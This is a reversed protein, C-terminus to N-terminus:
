VGLHHHHFCTGKKLFNSQSLWLIARRVTAHSCPRLNVPCYRKSPASARPQPHRLPVSTLDPRVKSASTAPLASPDLHEAYSPVIISDNFNFWYASDSYVYFTNLIKVSIFLWGTFTNLVHLWWKLTITIYINSYIFAKKCCFMVNTNETVTLMLYFGSCDKLYLDDHNDPHQETEEQDM